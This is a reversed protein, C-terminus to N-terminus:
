RFSRSCTVQCTTVRLERWSHARDRMIAHLRDEYVETLKQYHGADIDDLVPIRPSERAMLLKVVCESQRAGVLGLLAGSAGVGLTGPNILTSLLSGGLTAVVYILLFISHGWSVEYHAGDDLQM